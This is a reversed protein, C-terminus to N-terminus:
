LAASEAAADSASAVPSIPAVVGSPSGAHYRPFNSLKRQQSREDPSSFTWRKASWFHFFALM